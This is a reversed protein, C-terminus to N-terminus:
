TFARHLRMHAPHLGLETHLIADLSHDDGVLRLYVIKGVVEAKTANPSM